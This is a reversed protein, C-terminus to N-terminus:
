RAEPESSAEAPAYYAFASHGATDTMILFLLLPRRRAAFACTTFGYPPQAGAPIAVSAFDGGASQWYKATTTMQGTFAKGDFRGLLLLTSGVAGLAWYDAKPPPDSLMKHQNSWSDGSLLYLETEAVGGPMDRYGGFLYLADGAVALSANCLPLPLTPRSIWTGTIQSYSYVDDYVTGSAGYGGAVWIAEEFITVAHGIRPEEWPIQAANNWRGKEYIM